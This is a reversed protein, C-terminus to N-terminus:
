RLRAICSPPAPWWCLFPVLLNSIRCPGACRASWRAGNTQSALRHARHQRRPPRTREDINVPVYGAQLRNPKRVGDKGVRGGATRKLPALPWAGGAGRDGPRRERSSGGETKAVRALAGPMVNADRRKKPMQVELRSPKSVPPYPLTASVCPSKSACRRRSRRECRRM